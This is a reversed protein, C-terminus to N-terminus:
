RAGFLPPESPVRPNPERHHLQSVVELVGPLDRVISVVIPDDWGYRVDGTLTVVGRDVSFRVHRDEPMILDDTLVRKVDAAIAVDPRDFMKLIDRRSVIGVLHEDDVVPMRKVDQELMRRAVTRVDEDSRCVVVSRTMIDSAVSGRAKTVWPHDRVSMMDALLALARRRRTGYAEKSILDAETILGVLQGEANVVPLASVESRVLLEVAEKFSTDPLITVLDSTMVDSVRM